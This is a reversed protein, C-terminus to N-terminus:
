LKIMIDNIHINRTMDAPLMQNCVTVYNNVYNNVYNISCM